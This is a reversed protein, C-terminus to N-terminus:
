FVKLHGFCININTNTYKWKLCDACCVNNVFFQIQRQKQTQKICSPVVSMTWPVNRALSEDSHETGCRIDVWWCMSIIIINIIVMRADDTYETRQWINVCSTTIKQGCVCCLHRFVPGAFSLSSFMSVAEEDENLDLFSCLISLIM